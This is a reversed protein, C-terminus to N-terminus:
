SEFCQQFVPATHITLHLRQSSVPARQHNESPTHLDCSVQFEFTFQLKCFHSSNTAFMKAPKPTAYLCLFGIPLIIIQRKTQSKTSSVSTRGHSCTAWIGGTAAASGVRKAGTKWVRRETCEVLTLSNSLSAFVSFLRYMHKVWRVDSREEWEHVSRFKKIIRNNGLRFEWLIGLCFLLWCGSLQSSILMMTQATSMGFRCLDMGCM